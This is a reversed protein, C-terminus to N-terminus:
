NPGKFDYRPPAGAELIPNVQSSDIGLSEERQRRMVDLLHVIEAHPVNASRLSNIFVAQEETLERGRPLSSTPPSSSGASHAELRRSPDTAYSEPTYSIARTEPNPDEFPQTGASLANPNRIINSRPVLGSASSHTRGSSVSPLYSNARRDNSYDSTTPVSSRPPTVYTLPQAYQVSSPLHSGYLTSPPNFAAQGTVFGPHPQPDFVAANRSSRRRYFLLALIVAAIM